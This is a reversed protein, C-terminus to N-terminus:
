ETIEVPFTHQVGIKGGTASGTAPMNSTTTADHHLVVSVSGDAAAGTIWQTLLGVKYDDGEDHTSDPGDTRSFDIDIGQFDYTIFHLNKLQKLKTTKLVPNAPDSNNYTNFEVDYTEGANLKIVPNVYDNDRYEPDTYTYDTSNGDQDTVTMTLDTIVAKQNVPDPDSSDDDSCSVAFLSVFLLCLSIKFIKM